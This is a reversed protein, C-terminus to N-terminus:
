MKIVFRVVTENYPYTITLFYRVLGFKWPNQSPMKMKGEAFNEEDADRQPLPMLLGVM